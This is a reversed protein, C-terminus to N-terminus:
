LWVQEAVELGTLGYRCNRLELQIETLNQLKDWNGVYLNILSVTPMMQTTSDFLSQFCLYCVGWCSGASGWRVILDECDNGLITIWRSEDDCSWGSQVEQCQEHSCDSSTVDAAKCFDVHLNDESSDMSSHGMVKHIFSIYQTQCHRYLSLNM